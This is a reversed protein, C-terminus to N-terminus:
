LRTTLAALERLQRARRSAYRAAQWLLLILLAAVAATSIVLANRRPALQEEVGDFTDGVAIHLPM